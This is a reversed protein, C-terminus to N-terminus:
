AERRSLRRAGFALLVVVGAPGGLLLAEKALSGGVRVLPSPPEPRPRKPADSRQWAARREAQKARMRDALGSESLPLFALGVLTSVGLVILGRQILTKM